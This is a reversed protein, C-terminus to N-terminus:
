SMRAELPDTIETWGAMDCRFTRGDITVSDGVSMSRDKFVELQEEEYGGEIRNMYRFTTERDTEIDGVSPIEIKYHRIGNIGRDNEQGFMNHYTVTVTKM